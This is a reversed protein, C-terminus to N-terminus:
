SKSRVWKVDMLNKGFLIGSKFNPKMVRRLYAEENTVLKIDKHKRINEMTNGFVSNNMLKFFDKEFDNKAKTRLERNLDIYPTLWASQDFEIVRHVKELILGHKLAQDSARIHIVYNKKDYLNPFMKEVRNIAMKGCMFLFDNHLDHLEKLYRIDIELLYSKSDDEALRGIKESTFKSVDDLWKFGGTPLKQIM